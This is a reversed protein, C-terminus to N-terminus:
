DKCWQLRDCCSRQVHLQQALRKRPLGTWSVALPVPPIVDLILTSGATVTLAGSGGSVTIRCIAWFEDETAPLTVSGTGLKNYTTALQYISGKSKM